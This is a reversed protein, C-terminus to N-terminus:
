VSLHEPEPEVHVEVARAAFVFGTALLATLILAVRALPLRRVARPRAGLPLPRPRYDAPHVLAYEEAREYAAPLVLVPPEAPPELSRHRVQLSKRDSRWV